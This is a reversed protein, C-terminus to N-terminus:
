TLSRLAAEVQQERAARPFPLHLELCQLATMSPLSAPLHRTELALYSLCSLASLGEMSPASYAVV